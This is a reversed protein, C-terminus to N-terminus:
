PKALENLYEELYTFGSKALLAGDQDNQPDLGQKEEWVDPMGDWDSDVPAQKSKLEPWGGAEEVTDVIGDGEVPLEGKVQALIRLEHADRGPATVGVQKLVLRYAKQASVHKTETLLCPEELLNNEPTCGEEFEVGKGLNDRNVAKNGKIRNDSVYWRGDFKYGQANDIRVLRNKIRALTAPGPIYYNGIVNISRPKGDCSRHGYNFIVNNSFDSDKTDELHNGGISPNRAVASAFLNYLFSARVGGLTAGYGHPGKEHVSRHLPESVMTWQITIDETGHWSNLGEDCTWSVSCHDIIINKSERIEIGDIKSGLLGSGIGPRIRIFRVIVDHAGEIHLPFNKLCIGDGPATQGAITIYPHSITLMSELEITGSIGFVVTRAGKAEIAERLSGPGRDALTNVIYVEGGRGGKAYAGHGMAGPFALQQAWAPLACCQVLLLIVLILKNTKM